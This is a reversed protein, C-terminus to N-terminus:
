VRNKFGQGLNSFYLFIIVDSRVKDYVEELPLLRLSKNAILAGRLKLDRYMKSTEYARHVSLVSTFLRPTDPVLNTFIFEFRSSIRIM